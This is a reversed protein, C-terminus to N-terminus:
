LISSWVSKTGIVAKDFLNKKLKDVITYNCVGQPKCVSCGCVCAQILAKYVIAQAYPRNVRGAAVEKQM